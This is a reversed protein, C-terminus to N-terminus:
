MIIVDNNFFSLGYQEILRKQYQICVPDKEAAAMINVKEMAVPYAFGRVTLREPVGRKLLSRVARIPVTNEGIVCIGGHRILKELNAIMIVCSRPYLQLDVYERVLDREQQQSWNIVEFNEGVTARWLDKHRNNQDVHLFPM